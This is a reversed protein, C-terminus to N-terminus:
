KLTKRLAKKSSKSVRLKANRASEGEIVDRKLVDNVLIKGIENIDVKLNSTLRRLERRIGSNISDTQLIASIIFKNVVSVHAHYEEIADKSLGEKCLIFIKEQSEALKPNMELLNFSCLLDYNVPRKFKILYIEWNIGNTLVVWPVGKNVGYNVTQRLHNEKLDLGIAKVEILFKINDDIEVALDCLTGRIAYESTVETYKNYGFLISLIDTIITVTDAENIDRDKAKQLIRQFKKTEKIIRESVAKPITAM